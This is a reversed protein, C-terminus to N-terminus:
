RNKDSEDKEFWFKRTGTEREFERCFDLCMDSVKENLWCRGCYPGTYCFDIHAKLRVGGRKNRLLKAKGEGTPILRLM